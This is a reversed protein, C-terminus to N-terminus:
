QGEYNVHHHRGDDLSGPVPPEHLSRGPRERGTKSCGKRHAGPYTRSVKQHATKLATLLLERDAAGGALVSVAITPIGGLTAAIMLQGFDNAVLRSIFIAAGTGAIFAAISLVLPRDWPVFKMRHWLFLSALGNAVLIAIATAVAAGVAGFHSILTACAIVSAVLGLLANRALVRPLSLAYIALTNFGLLVDITVSFALIRTPLTMGASRNGYLLHVLPGPAAAMLTLAPACLALGWRSTWRTLDLLDSDKGRTRAATMAPLAYSSLTAFLAGIASAIGSVPAYAGALASGHFAGLFVVDLQNVAVFFMSAALSAVGYAVFYKSSLSREPRNKLQGVWGSWLVLGVVSVGLALSEVAAMSVASRFGAVLLGITLPLILGSRLAVSLLPIKPKFTAQIFGLAADRIPAVLALPALMLFAPVASSLSHVRSMVLSVAALAVAVLAVLYVIVRTAARVVMTLGQDEDSILAGAARHAVSGHLGFAAVSVVFTIVGTALAYTGFSSPSMLRVLIVTLPLGTAAGLLWSILSLASGSLINSKSQRSNSWPAVPKDPAEPAAQNVILGTLTANSSQGCLFAQWDATGCAV